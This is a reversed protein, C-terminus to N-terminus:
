LTQQRSHNQRSHVERYVRTASAALRRAIVRWSHLVAMDAVKEEVYRDVVTGRTSNRLDGDVTITRTRADAAVIIIWGICIWCRHARIPLNRNIYRSIPAVSTKASVCVFERDRLVLTHVCCGVMAVCCVCVGGVCVHVLVHVCVCVCVCVVHVCVCVHVCMCVRVRVCVCVCVCVCCGVQLTDM